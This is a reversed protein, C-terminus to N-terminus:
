KNPKIFIMKSQHESRKDEDLYKKVLIISLM